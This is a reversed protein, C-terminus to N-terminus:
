GVTLRRTLYASSSTVWRAPPGVPSHRTSAREDMWSQVPAALLGDDDLLVQCNRIGCLGAAVVAGAAHGSAELGAMAERTAGCLADWLDDDPHEAMGQRPARLPRLERHGRAVLRGDAAHVAVKASQTGVDIGLLLQQESM